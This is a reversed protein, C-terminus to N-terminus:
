EKRGKEELLKEIFLNTNEVFRHYYSGTGPGYFGTHIKRIEGKRDIFIATPFSMVHNLMPLTQSAEIKDSTGAILLDYEINFYAKLKRLNKQAVDMDRTREYALSIIALGQDKYRRHIEALYKTEDMCNPCWSGMLQIIVVKDTFKADSLSVPNGNLDPFTFALETYDQKLYTLSDPNRLEYEEDKIATWPEQFHIGSFFQGKISDGQLQAHFLFAHSGDFASLRMSDGDVVGELYRYDGTELLFTGTIHNGSQKFIGIAPQAIGTGPSFTTRWKGTFDVKADKKAGFREYTGFTAKFPIQYNSRRSYDRWIGEMLSDQTLKARIETDFFPMRITISDNKVTIDHLSLREEANILALTYNGADQQLEFLFPLELKGLSLAARWIGKNPGMNVIQTTAKGTLAVLYVILVTLRVLGKM